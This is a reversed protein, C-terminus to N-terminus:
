LIVVKSFTACFELFQLALGIDEPDMEIGMVESLRSGCPLTIIEEELEKLRKMAVDAEYHKRLYPKLKSIEVKNIPNNSMGELNEKMKVYNTSDQKDPNENRGEKRPKKFLQKKAKPEEGKNEKDEDHKRKQPAAVKSNLWYITFVKKLFFIFHNKTYKPVSSFRQAQKSLSM